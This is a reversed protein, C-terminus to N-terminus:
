VERTSRTVKCTCCVARTSKMRLTPSTEFGNVDLGGGGQQLGLGGRDASDDVSRLDDIQRQVAAVEDLECLQDRANLRGGRARDGNAASATGDTLLVSRESGGPHGGVAAAIGRVAIENIANFEHVVVCHGVREGWGDIGNGLEFDLGTGIGGVKAAGGATLHVHDGLASTILKVARQPLEVAVIGERLGVIGDGAAANVRGAEVAILEACVDTARDEQRFEVVSAISCEEEEVPFGAAEGLSGVGPSRM